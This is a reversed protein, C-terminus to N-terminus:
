NFMSLSLTQLRAKNIYKCSKCVGEIPNKL